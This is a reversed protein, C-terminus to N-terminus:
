KQAQIPGFEPHQERLWAMARQEGSTKIREVYNIIEEDPANPFWKDFVPAGAQMDKRAALNSNRIDPALRDGFNVDAPWKTLTANQMAIGVLESIMPVSEPASRLKQGIEWNVQLMEQQTKTDGAAGAKEALELFQQGLMKLQVLHPLTIDSIGLIKAEAELRGASLYAEEAGQMSERFYEEYDKEKAAALEALAGTTDGRKMAEKAALMNPYANTAASKKFDEIMRARDEDSMDLWMLAKAQVLPESPFKEVAAKLYEKNRSTEFATVLSLANSGKAQVYLYVDHESLKFDDRYAKESIM